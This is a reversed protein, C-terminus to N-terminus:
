VIDYGVVILSFDEKCGFVVSLLCLWCFVLFCLMFLFYRCLACAVALGVMGGGVIAIDLEDPRAKM